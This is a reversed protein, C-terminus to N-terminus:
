HRIASTVKVTLSGSLDRNSKATAKSTSNAPVGSVNVVAADLFNGNPDDFSVTVTYDHPSATPNTVTLESVAKGNSDTTVPGAKVDATADVAGKIQALASSAASSASSAAKSAAKSAEDVGPVSANSGCGSTALAGLAALVFAAVGPRRCRRAAATNTVM